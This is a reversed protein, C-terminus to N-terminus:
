SAWVVMAGFVDRLSEVGDAILAYSNGLLGGLLKVMALVVSAVLGLLTARIGRQASESVAQFPHEPQVAKPLTTRNMTATAASSSEALGTLRSRDVLMASRVLFIGDAQHSHGVIRPADDGNM